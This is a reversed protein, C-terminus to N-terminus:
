ESCINKCVSLGQGQERCAKLCSFDMKDFSVEKKVEVKPSNNIVAVQSCNTICQKLGVGSLGTTCSAYYCKEFAEKQTAKREEPKQTAGLQQNLVEGLIASLPNAPQQTTNTTTKPPYNVSGHTTIGCSESCYAPFGGRAICKEQCGMDQASAGFSFFIIALVCILRMM